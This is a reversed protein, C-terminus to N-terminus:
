CVAGTSPSRGDPRPEFRPFACFIWVFRPRRHLAEPWRPAAQVESLCLCDMRVSPPPPPGGAM